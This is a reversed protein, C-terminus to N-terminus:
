VDADILVQRVEEFTHTDNFGIPDNTGYKKNLTAYLRIVAEQRDHSSYCHQIAGLMCWKCTGENWGFADEGDATLAYFKQCWKEPSDLLEYAKM